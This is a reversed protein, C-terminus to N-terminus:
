NGVCGWTNAENHLYVCGKSDNCDTCFVMLGSAVPSSINVTDAATIRPILLGLSESDLELIASSHAPDGTQNIAVGGVLMTFSFLGFSIFLGFLINKKM